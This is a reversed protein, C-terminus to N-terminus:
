VHPAPTLFPKALVAARAVDRALQQKIADLGEFRMQERLYGILQLQIPWGYQHPNKAFGPWDILHVEAISAPISGPPTFTPKRGISLAGAYFRQDPGTVLAAYVGDAPLMQQPTFNATPFGINRGRQEGQEVTGTLTYWRGLIAAADSVRGHELLWRVMSSRAPALTHDTIAVALEEVSLTRAGLKQFTDLSGQRGQGFRFDPGAIILPSPALKTLLDTAFQEARQGLLEVSPTLRWVEAIGLSQLAVSKQEFTMLRPPVSQPRLISSPHPDFVLAAARGSRTVADRVALTALNAHGRHVGDFTGIILSTPLMLLPLSPTDTIFRHNCALGYLQSPLLWLSRRRTQTAVVYGHKIRVIFLPYQFRRIKDPENAFRDREFALPALVRTQARKM